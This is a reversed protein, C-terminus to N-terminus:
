KNKNVDYLSGTIGSVWKLHYINYSWSYNLSFLALCNLLVLLILYTFWYYFPYFSLIICSSSGNLFVFFYFFLGSISIFLSFLGENGTRIRIWKDAKSEKYRVYLWWKYIIFLDGMIRVFQSPNLLYKEHYKTNKLDICPIVLLVYIIYTPLFLCKKLRLDFTKPKPIYVHYILINFVLLFIITNVIFLLLHIM